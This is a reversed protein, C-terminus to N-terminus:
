QNDRMVGFIHWDSRLGSIFGMLGMNITLTISLLLLAINSKKNDDQGMQLESIVKQM